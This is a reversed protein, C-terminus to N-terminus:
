DVPVFVPEDDRMAPDGAPAPPQPSEAAPPPNPCAPPPVIEEPPNRTAPDNEPLARLEPAPAPATGGDPMGAEQRVQRLLERYHRPLEPYEFLESLTAANAEWNRTGVVDTPYEAKLAELMASPVVPPNGLIVIRQPGLLSVFESYEAVAVPLVDPSRELFFCNAAGHSTDVLLIPAQREHQVLEALLRPEIYNGTVLLYAPRDVAGLWGRFRTFLGAEASNPGAFVAALLFLVGLSRRGARLLFEALFPTGEPVRRFLAESPDGTGPLWSDSRHNPSVSHM